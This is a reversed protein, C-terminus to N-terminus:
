AYRAEQSRLSLLSGSGDLNGSGVRMSEAGRFITEGLCGCGGRGLHVLLIATSVPLVFLPNADGEISTEHDFSSGDGSRCDRLISEQKEILLAAHKSAMDAVDRAAACSNLQLVEVDQGQVKFECEIIKVINAAALDNPSSTINHAHLKLIIL